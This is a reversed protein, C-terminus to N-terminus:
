HNWYWKRQCLWYMNTELSLDLNIRLAKIMLEQWFLYAILCIFSTLFLSFTSLYAALFNTQKWWIVKNFSITDTLFSFYFRLWVFLLSAFCKDQVYSVQNLEQCQMHEGSCLAWGVDIAFFPRLFCLSLFLHKIYLAWLNICIVILM